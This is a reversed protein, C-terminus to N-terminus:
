TALDQEGSSADTSWHGRRNLARYAMVGWFGWMATILGLGLYENVLALGAAVLYIASGLAVRRRTSSILESPM